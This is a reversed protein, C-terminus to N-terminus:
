LKRSRRQWMGRAMSDAEEVTDAKGIIKLAIAVTGAISAEVAPLDIDGCWLAAIREPSLDESRWEHGLSQTWSPWDEEDIEGDRVTYVRCTKQPNRQIEGGIGKFVAARSQGSLQAVSSHVSRYNPHFMGVLQTPAEFPNIARAVTNAFTRVGLVPRLQFLAELRPLFSELGIYAFNRQKLMDSAATMDKSPEIGLAALAPRTPALGESFGTIGHMLVKYGNEALLLASLVFWPQQRHRDAYSPWDIDPHTLGSRINLFVRVADIFGALEEPTEGRSRLIMLLAGLQEREVEGSLIMTMVNRAEDRDLARSTHPGNAIIKLYKALQHDQESHM